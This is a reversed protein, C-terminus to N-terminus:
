KKEVKNLNKKYKWQKFGKKHYNYNNDKYNQQFNYNQNRQRDRRGLFPFRRKKNANLPKKNVKVALITKVKLPKAKPKAAVMSLTLGLATM